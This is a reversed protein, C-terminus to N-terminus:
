DEDPEDMRHWRARCDVAEKRVHRKPDDLSSTLSRIVQRRFPLLTENKITGPLLRLCRLASQRVRKFPTLM